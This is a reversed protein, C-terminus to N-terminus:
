KKLIYEKEINVKKSQQIRELNKVELDFEDV